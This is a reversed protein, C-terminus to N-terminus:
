SPPPPTFAPGTLFIFKKHLEFIFEFCFTAKLSSPVPTLGKTAPGSFFVKKSIGKTNFLFQFYFYKYVYQKVRNMILCM